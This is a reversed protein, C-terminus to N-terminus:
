HLCSIGIWSAATIKSIHKEFNHLFGRALRGALWFGIKSDKSLPMVGHSCPYSRPSAIQNSGANIRIATREPIFARRRIARVEEPHVLLLIHIDYGQM